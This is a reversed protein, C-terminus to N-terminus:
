RDRGPEEVSVCCGESQLEVHFQEFYASGLAFISFVNKLASLM